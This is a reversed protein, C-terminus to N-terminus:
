TYRGFDKTAKIMAYLNAPPTNPSLGCDPMLIFGGPTYKMEEVIRRTEEYVENPTELQLTLNKVNGGIIYDQGLFEATKKMDMETGLTFITRPVLKIENKWCELNKSHDGCLHIIWKFVNRRILTEHIEQIYPLSFERFQAPSVLAHCDVPFANFVAINEAGFEEINVDAITLLYDTSIRLLKHVLDPKRRMWRLLNEIGVIDQALNLPSGGFISAGLGKEVTLRNFELVRSAYPAERPNPVTLREIDEEKEAARRITKPLAVRKKTSFEIDGGFDWNFGGPIDYVPGADYQYMQMIWMQADLAKQPELYCERSTINCNNAAFISMMPNVPVRDLGQKKVLALLREEVTLKDKYM